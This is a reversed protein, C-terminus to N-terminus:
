EYLSSIYIEIKMAVGLPGDASVQLADHELFFFISLICTKQPMRVSNAQFLTAQWANEKSHDNYVQM